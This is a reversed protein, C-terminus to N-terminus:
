RKDYISRPDIKHKLYEFDEVKEKIKEQPTKYESSKKEEKKGM